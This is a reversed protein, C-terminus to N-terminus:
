FEMVCPFTIWHVNVISFFLKHEIETKGAGTALIASASLRM